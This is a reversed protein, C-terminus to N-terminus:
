DCAWNHYTEGTAPSYWIHGIGYCPNGTEAGNLGGLLPGMDYNHQFVMLMKAGTSDVPTEDGQTWFPHGGLKDSEFCHVNYPIGECLVEVEPVENGNADLVMGTIVSMNDEVMAELHSARKNEFFEELIFSRPADLKQVWGVIVSATLEIHGDPMDRLSGPKTTDQIIVTSNSGDEEWGGAHFFSLLGAQPLGELAPIKALDLQLIFFMPAGDYLPWERDQELWPRGFYRSECGISDSEKTVPFHAKKTLEEVATLFDSKPM